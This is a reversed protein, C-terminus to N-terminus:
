TKEAECLRSSTSMGRFYNAVKCSSVVTDNMPIQKHNSLFFTTCLQSTFPFAHKPTKKQKQKKLQSPHCM